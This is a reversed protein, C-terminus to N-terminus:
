EIKEQKQTFNMLPMIISPIGAQSSFSAVIARLFPYMIAPANQSSLKEFMEDTMEPNAKFGGKMEVEIKLLQDKSNIKVNLKVEVFRKDDVSLGRGVSINQEFEAKSFDFRDDIDFCIKSVKYGLFNYDSINM